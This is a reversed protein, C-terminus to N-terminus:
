RSEFVEPAGLNLSMILASDPPSAYYNERTYNTSFNNKEYFNVARLNRRRVELWITEIANERCIEAFKNFLIQGIGKNQFGENVAINLIEAEKGAPLLRGLVFGVITKESKQVHCFVFCVSSQACIEDFYHQVSWDSLNTNDAINKIQEVYEKFNVSDDFDASLRDIETNM